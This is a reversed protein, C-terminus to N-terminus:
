AMREKWRMWMTARSYRRGSGKSSLSRLILNPDQCPGRAQGMNWTLIVSNDRTMDTWNAAMTREPSREKGETGWKELRLAIPGSRGIEL